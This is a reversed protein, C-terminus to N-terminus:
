SQEAKALAREVHADVLAPSGAVIVLVAGSRIATQKVVSRQGAASFTLMLSWAEDGLQPPAAEQTGMDILTSGMSVQYTPCSAMADVIQGISTSLKAPTDSYLEESVESGNGGAYNFSVKARRPLNLTGGTAADGGLQELAPCGIVTVDDRPPVTTAKRTYGQGLEDAALLRHTLAASSLPLAVTAPSGGEEAAAPRSTDAPGTSTSCGTLALATIASLGLAAASAHIRM